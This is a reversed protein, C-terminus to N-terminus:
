KESRGGVAHVIQAPSFGPFPDKSTFLAVVLCGFSWMDSATSPAGGETMCEPPQYAPNGWPFTGYGLSALAAALGNDALVARGDPALLVNSPRVDLHAVGGEHLQALARLVAAAIGLAEPM